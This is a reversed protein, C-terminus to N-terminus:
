VVITWIRSFHVCLFIYVIGSYRVTAVIDSPLTDVVIYTVM